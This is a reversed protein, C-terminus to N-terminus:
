PTLRPHLKSHACCIVKHAIERTQQEEEKRKRVLAVKSYSIIVERKRPGDFKVEITQLLQYRILSLAEETHQKSKTTTTRASLSPPNEMAALMFAEKRGHLLAWSHM